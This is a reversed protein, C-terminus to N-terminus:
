PECTPVRASVLCDLRSFEQGCQVSTGQCLPPEGRPPAGLPAGGSGGGPGTRRRRGRGGGTPLAPCAYARRPTKPGGSRAETAHGARGVPAGGADGLPALGVSGCICPLAGCIAHQGPRPGCRGLVEPQSIRTKVLAAWCASVRRRSRATPHIWVNM